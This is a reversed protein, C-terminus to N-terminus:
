EDGAISSNLFGNDQYIMASYGSKKKSQYMAKDAERYLQDFSIEEDKYCFSAGLSVYIKNEGLESVRIKAFEDFLHKIFEKAKKYELLGPIYM